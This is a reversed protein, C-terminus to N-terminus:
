GSLGRVDCGFVDVRLDALVVDASAAHRDTVQIIFDVGHHVRERRVVFQDEGGTRQGGGSGRSAVAIHHDGLRRQRTRQRVGIRTAIEGGPHLAGAVVQVDELAFGRLRDVDPHVLVLNFDPRSRMDPALINGGGGVDQEFLSVGARFDGADARRPLVQHRIAAMMFSLCRAAAREPTPATM